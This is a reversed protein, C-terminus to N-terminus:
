QHPLFVEGVFAVLREKSTTLPATVTGTTWTRRIWGMGARPVKEIPLRAVRPGLIIPKRIGSASLGNISPRRNGQVVPTMRAAREAAAQV